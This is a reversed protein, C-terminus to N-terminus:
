GADLEVEATYSPAHLAAQPNAHREKEYEMTVDSFIPPLMKKLMLQILYDRESPVRAFDGVETVFTMAPTGVDLGDCDSARLALLLDIGFAAYLDSVRGGGSEVQEEIWDHVDRACREIFRQQEADRRQWAPPM